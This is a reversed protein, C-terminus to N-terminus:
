AGYCDDTEMDLEGHNRVVVSWHWHQLAISLEVSGRSRAGM